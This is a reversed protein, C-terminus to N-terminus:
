KKLHNLLGLMLLATVLLITILSIKDIQTLSRNALIFSIAVTCLTLLFIIGFVIIGSRTSRIVPRRQKQLEPTM